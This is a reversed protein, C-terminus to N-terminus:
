QSPAVRARCPRVWASYYRYGIHTNGYNLNVVWAGDEPGSADRSSTWMWGSDPGRFVPDRAPNYRTIDRISEAEALDPMRWGGGALTQDACAKDTDHHRIENPLFDAFWELNTAQDYVIPYDTADDPLDRGEADCRIYRKETM